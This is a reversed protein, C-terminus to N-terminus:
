LIDNKVIKAKCKPCRSEGESVVQGCPCVWKGDVKEARIAVETARFLNDFFTKTGVIDGVLMPNGLMILNSAGHNGSANLQYGRRLMMLEFLYNKNVGVGMKNVEGLVEMVERSIRQKNSIDKGQRIAEWVEGVGVIREGFRTWEEDTLNIGVPQSRLGQFNEFGDMTVGGDRLMKEAMGVMEEPTKQVVLGRCELEVDDGEVKVVRAVVVRGDIYSGGSPSFWFILKYGDKALEFMNEMGRKEEEAFQMSEDLKFNIRGDKKELIYPNIRQEVGVGDREECYVGALQGQDFGGKELEIFYRKM